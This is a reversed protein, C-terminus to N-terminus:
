RGGLPAGEATTKILDVRSRVQLKALVSAVHAEVTRRSVMLQEAIQPNSRCDAV